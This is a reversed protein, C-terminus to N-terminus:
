RTTTKRRKRRRRLSLLGWSRRTEQMLNCSRLRQWVLFVFRVAFDFVMRVLLRAYSCVDVCLACLYLDERGGLPGEIVKYTDPLLIM